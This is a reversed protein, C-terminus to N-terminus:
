DLMETLIQREKELAVVVEIGGATELRSTRHVTGAKLRPVYLTRDLAPNSTVTLLM